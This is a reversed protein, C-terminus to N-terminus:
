RVSQICNSQVWAGGAAICDRGIRERSARDHEGNWTIALILGVIVVSVLFSVVTTVIISGKDM